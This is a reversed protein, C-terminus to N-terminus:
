TRSSYADFNSALSQNCRILVSAKGALGHYFQLTNRVRGGGVAMM